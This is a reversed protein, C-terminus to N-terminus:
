KSEKTLPQWSLADATISSLRRLGTGDANIVFTGDASDDGVAVSFAIMRGDPSWIPAANDDVCCGSRYLREKGSGNVNM